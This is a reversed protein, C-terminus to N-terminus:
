LARDLGAKYQGGQERQIEGARMKATEMLPELQEKAREIAGAAMILEQGVFKLRLAIAADDSNGQAEIINPDPM